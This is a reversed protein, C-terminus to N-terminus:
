SRLSELLRAAIERVYAKDDSLARRLETKLWKPKLEAIIAVANVRIGGSEDDLLPRIYRALAGDNLQRVALMAHLRVSMSSHMLGGKIRRLARPGPFLGLADMAWRVVSPPYDGECIGCLPTLAQPGLRVLRAILQRQHNEGHMKFVRAIRSETITM